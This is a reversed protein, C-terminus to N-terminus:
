SQLYTKFLYFHIIYILIMLYTDAPQGSEVHNDPLPEVLPETYNQDDHTKSGFGASKSTDRTLIKPLGIKDAQLAQGLFHRVLRWDQHETHPRETVACSRKSSAKGARVKLSRKPHSKRLKSHEPTIKRHRFVMFQAFEDFVQENFARDNGSMLEETIGMLYWGSVLKRTKFLWLNTGM